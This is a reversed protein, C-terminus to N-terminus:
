SRVSKRSNRFTSFCLVDCARGLAAKESGAALARMLCSSSANWVWNSIRWTFPTRRVRSAVGQQAVRALHEPLEFAQM